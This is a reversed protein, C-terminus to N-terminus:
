QRNIKNMTRDNQSPKFDGHLIKNEHLWKAKLVEDHTVEYPDDNSLYPLVYDAKAEPPLFCDDYKGILLIFIVFGSVNIFIWEWFLHSTLSWSRFKRTIKERRKRKNWSIITVTQSGNTTKSSVVELCSKCEQHTRIELTSTPMRSREPTNSFKIQHWITPYSESPMTTEWVSADKFWTERRTPITTYFSHSIQYSMISSLIILQFRTPLLQM